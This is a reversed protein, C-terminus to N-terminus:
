TGIIWAIIQHDLWAPGSTTVFGIHGGHKPACLQTTPSLEAEVFPHFPVVPDDQAAIILTPVNITSLFQSASCREYYASASSFGCVPATFTEDFERMSRPLRQFWGEPVIADPRVRARLRINRICLNAFYRDYWRGLGTKLSEICVSLDIPPSISVAREIGATGGQVAGAEGLLKLAVNGGLSFGILCIPSDPIRDRLVALTALVDDSRGSHYPYRALSIGAGCGRWDLRITRVDRHNLQHSIRRMYPSNHSGALGHLMLAVRDGPQWGAPCDDHFVLRDGDDLSVEGTTRITTTLIRPNSKKRFLFVGALTQVHGNRMPWSPDFTEIRSQQGQSPVSVQM